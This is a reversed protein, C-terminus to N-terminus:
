LSKKGRQVKIMPNNERQHYIDKRRKNRKKVWDPDSQNAKVRCATCCFHQSPFRAFIWKGCNDCHRVSTLLNMNRLRHIILVAEYEFWDSGSLRKPPSLTTTHPWVRFRYTYRDLLKQLRLFMEGRGTKKDGPRWPHGPGKGLKNYLEIIEKIRPQGKSDNSNLGRVLGGAEDEGSFRRKRKTMRSKTRYSMRIDM